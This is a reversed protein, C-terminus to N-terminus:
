IGFGHCRVDRLDKYVDHLHTSRFLIVGVTLEGLKVRLCEFVCCIHMRVKQLCFIGQFIKPTVM